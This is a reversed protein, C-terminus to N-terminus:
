CQGQLHPAPLQFPLSSGCDRLSPWYKTCLVPQVLSGADRANGRRTCTPLQVPPSSGLGSLSFPEPHAPTACVVQVLAGHLPSTPSTRSTDVCGHLITSVSGCSLFWPRTPRQARSSHAGRLVRARVRRQSGRLTALLVRQHLSHLNALRVVFCTSPASRRQRGASTVVVINIQICICIYVYTCKIKM